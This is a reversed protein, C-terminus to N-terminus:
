GAGADPGPHRHLFDLVGAKFVRDGVATMHDREPIPLVEAGPMLRALPEPPGAVGDRTGIAVLVPADIGVLQSETLTERPARMCAALAKLDSRTREAFRRFMRGKETAADDASPAELARAIEEGDTFGAVLSYGMGGLVAAAVRDPHDVTLFAAIRAGMSYGIVAARRIGLHDLLRRADAAMDRLDYAAPDYLKESEGHGRNDIALV